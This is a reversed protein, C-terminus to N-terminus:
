LLHDRVLQGYNEVLWYMIISRDEGTADDFWKKISETTAGEMIYDMKSIDKEALERAEKIIAEPKLM